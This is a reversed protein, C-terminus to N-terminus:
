SEATAIQRQPRDQRRQARSTQSAAQAAVGCAPCFTTDPVVHQCWVCLIPLAPYTEVDEDRLMTVQLALRLAIVAAVAFVIHVCFQLYPPLRYAQALGVCAYAAAGIILGVGGVAVTRLNRRNVYWLWAGILASLSLGTLPEGIGRVGAQLLLDEVPLDGTVASDGFQPIMRIVNTALLFMAGGLLGIVAGHLSERVPPRLLRVVIVPLQMALLGGFPIIVADRLLRATPVQAGLGLSYSEAVIAGTLTAWAVGVAAGLVATLVWVWAPLDTLLRSEILYIAILTPPAFIALALMPVYWQLVCFAVLVALLLGLAFRFAVRSRSPLHPFMSSVIAPQLVNEGPAAAFDSVRLRSPRKDSAVSLHAGCRVCFRGAPVDHACGPCPMTAIDPHDTM